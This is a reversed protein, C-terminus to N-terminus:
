IEVFVTTTPKLFIEKNMDNTYSCSFNAPGFQDKRNYHNRILTDAATEKRKFYANQKLSKLLVPKM